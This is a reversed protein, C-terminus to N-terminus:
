RSFLLTSDVLFSFKDAKFELLNNGGSVGKTKHARIQDYVDRAAILERPDAVPINHAPFIRDLRPALDALKAISNQYANLDAGHNFVYIPGNYYTDGTFLYRHKADWLCIADPAHGPTAMVVLNRDGLDITFGDDIYKAVTFPRISYKATDLGPLHEMCFAEPTVEGAVMSHRYGSDAHKHTFGTNMAVINTFEYNGGVHDYHTHSNLVIIPLDTLQKVVPSISDMGMGTDFLLAAKKGTILYSIVEQFNYRELIAYVSDGVHYVNFWNRSIPIPTLKQLEPRIQKDCWSAKPVGSTTNTPNHCASLLLILCCYHVRM